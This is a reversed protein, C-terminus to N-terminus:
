NYKTKAEETTVNSWENYLDLFENSINNRFRIIKTIDRETNLYHQLRQEFRNLVSNPVVSKCANYLDEPVRLIGLHKFKIPESLKLIKEYKEIFDSPDDLGAKRLYINLEFRYDDITKKTMNLVYRWNTNTHNYHVM